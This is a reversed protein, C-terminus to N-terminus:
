PSRTEKLTAFHSDSEVVEEPTRGNLDSLRTETWRKARNESGFVCVAHYWTVRAQAAIDVENTSSM